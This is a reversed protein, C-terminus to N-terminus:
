ACDSGRHCLRAFGDLHLPCVQVTRPQQQRDVGYRPRARLHREREGYVDNENREAHRPCEHRQDRVVPPDLVVLGVRQEERPTPRLVHRHRECHARDGARHERELEAEQPWPEHTAEAARVANGERDFPQEEEELRDEDGDVDVSPAPERRPWVKPGTYGYHDGTDTARCGDNSGIGPHVFRGPEPQVRHALDDVDIRPRHDEVLGHGVFREVHEHRSIEDPAEQNRRHVRHAQQPPPAITIVPEAEDNRERDRRDGRRDLHDDAILQRAPDVLVLRHLERRDLHHGLRRAIHGLGEETVEARLALDATTDGNGSDRRYQGVRAFARFGHQLAEVRYGRGIPRRVGFHVDNM